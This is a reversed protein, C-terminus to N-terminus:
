EKEPRYGFEVIYGLSAILCPVAVGKTIQRKLNDLLVQIRPEYVEVIGLTKSHVHLRRNSYQIYAESDGPYYPDVLIIRPM